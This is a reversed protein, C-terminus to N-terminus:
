QKLLSFTFNGTIGETRGGNINNVQFSLKLDSSSIDDINVEVGDSRTLLNIDKENLIFTGTVPWANGGSVTIFTLDANLMLEFDTFQWTVDVNDNKVSALGWVAVLEKKRQDALNVVTKKKCSGVGFAVLALFVWFAKRKGIM